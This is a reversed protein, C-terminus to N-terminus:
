QSGGGGRQGGSVVPTAVRDYQVVFHTKGVTLRDGSMLTAVRQVRRGNVFTGTRSGLDLVKLTDGEDAIICQYTGVFSDDVSVEANGERGVMAPLEDLVIKRTLGSTDTATLEVRMTVM